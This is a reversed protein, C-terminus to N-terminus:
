PKPRSVRETIAPVLMLLIFSIFDWGHAAAWLTGIVAIYQAALIMRRRRGEFPGLVLTQAIVGLCVAAAIPLPHRGTVFYAIVLGFFAPLCLPGFIEVFGKARKHPLSIVALAAATLFYLYQM